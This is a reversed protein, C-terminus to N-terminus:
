PFASTRVAEVYARVAAAIDRGEGMFSRAHRPMPDTLGLLDHLVLIQGDCAAGSGIGIVPIGAQETIEAALEDVVLELLLLEAGAQELEQATQRLEAAEAPQRGYRRVKDLREMSQPRLGLHACVSIDQMALARIIEAQDRAAELKIIQAGSEVILRSANIQASEADAYSGYPLDAVLLARRLGRRACLTHYAMDDMTVAQTGVEGQLVMGLSDGALVFEVGNEDLVRAFTADYATLGAFHQGARAKERLTNLTVPTAIDSM